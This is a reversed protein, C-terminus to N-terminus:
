PVSCVGSFNWKGNTRLNSLLHIDLGTPRLYSCYSQLIVMHTLLYPCDRVKATKLDRQARASDLGQPDTYAGLALLGGMFCVLHDQKTDLHNKYKDAIFVLESPSSVSLLVDFMGQMSEDYMDRFFPETKGGQLWIKLMYEYFSDAMAGFTLKENAFEPKNGTNSIFYPYLGHPPNMDHLVHYVEESKTKYDKIGTWRALTRFEMQLTGFESLIGDRPAWGLNSTVGTALNVRGYPIGSPNDFSKFLRAGLDKAQDLFAEDESWDYAALLGGLSRITTEFVSVAANQDHNLHKKCWDRARYFEEKMGMLWLTDLSDVLTIGLDGWTSSARLSIPKIEDSGFAYKEYNEWAHKMANKVHVRRSRALADSEGPAYTYPSDGWKYEQFRHGGPAFFTSFDHNEDVLAGGNPYPFNGKYGHKPEYALFSEKRKAANASVEKPPSGLDAIFGERQKNMMAEVEETHKNATRRLNQGASHQIPATRSMVASSAAPDASYFFFGALLGVALGVGILLMGCLITKLLAHEGSKSRTGRRRRLASKAM